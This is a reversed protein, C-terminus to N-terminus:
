RGYMRKYVDTYLRQYIAVADEQPEFRRGVRTMREMASRHDAYIGLGVMTNIAAGLASTEVTHPREVPLNFIDATLQLAIDSKSGGGSVRLYKLRVGARQEI